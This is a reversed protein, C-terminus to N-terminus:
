GYIAIVDAMLVIHYNLRGCFYMAIVDAMIAIVDAMLVFHYNWRACFYFILVNAVM